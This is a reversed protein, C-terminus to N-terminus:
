KSYYLFYKQILSNCSITLSLPVYNKPLLDQLFNQRASAPTPLIVGLLLSEANEELPFVIQKKM